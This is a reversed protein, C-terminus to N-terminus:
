FAEKFKAAFAKEALADVIHGGRVGPRTPLVDRVGAGPARTASSISNSLADYVANGFPLGPRVHPLPHLAQCGNWWAAPGTATMAGPTCVVRLSRIATSCMM